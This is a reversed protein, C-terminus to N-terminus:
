WVSRIRPGEWGRETLETAAWVLADLRDQSTGDSLGTLGFDCM